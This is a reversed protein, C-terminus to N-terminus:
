EIWPHIQLKRLPLSFKTAHRQLLTCGWFLTTLKTFKRFIKLAYEIFLLTSDTLNNTLSQYVITKDLSVHPSHLREYTPFSPTCCIQHTCLWKGIKVKRKDDTTSIAVHMHLKKSKGLNRQQMQLGFRSFNPMDFLCM